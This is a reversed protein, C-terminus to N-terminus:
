SLLEEVKSYGEDTLTYTNDWIEVLSRDVLTNLIKRTGSITNWVWGTRPHDVWKGHEYLALLLDRQVHGLKRAM